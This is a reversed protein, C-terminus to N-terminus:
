RRRLQVFLFVVFAFFALAIGAPVVIMATLGGGTSPESFPGLLLVAGMVLASLAIIFAFVAVRTRAQWPREKPDPATRSM